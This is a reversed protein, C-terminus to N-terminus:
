PVNRDHRVVFGSSPDGNENSCIRTRHKRRPVVGVPMNGEDWFRKTHRVTRM